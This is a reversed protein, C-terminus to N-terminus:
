ARRPGSTQMAYWWLFRRVPRPLKTYKVLRRFTPVNEVPARKWEDLLKVLDPLPRTDPALVLGFFVAPEGEYEREVAISAVSEDAEHLHPTPLPVYARRLEPRRAAVIAYAKAFLLVWAPSPSAAARAAALAGLAMRRECTVLPCQRG